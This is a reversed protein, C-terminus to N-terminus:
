RIFNAVKDIFAEPADAQVWHGAGEITVLEAKPFLRRIGNTDSDTIYESHEGRIFLTSGMFTRDGEIADNLGPYNQLLALLNIKWMFAGSEDRAVNKLLFQRVPASNVSAALAMDLEQRHHYKGLDLSLMAKFIPEHWPPYAKPAIDAVVLKEVRDPHRLAFHMATKGGMSHGLLNARKLERADMFERVDDVLVDYNFSDSHPSRGHNRLDLAFVQAIEGLRRSVTQWNDLSGFLGHLIILPFGEGYKQYNLEM